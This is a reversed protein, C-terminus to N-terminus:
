PAPLRFRFLSGRGEESEVEIDGGHLQLLRRTIWLGLGAGPAERKDLRSFRQFLRPREKAPIGKGTDAVEVLIRDGECRAAVRITGGQPSYKVANDLLNGLIQELRGPDARLYVGEPVQNLFRFLPLRDEPQRARLLELERQVLPRVEIVAPELPVERGEELQAADLYTQVLRSARNASAEMTELMERAPDPLELGRLLHVGGKIVTLPGKLDHAAIQVFAAMADRRAKEELERRTAEQVQRFLRANEICISAQAALSRLLEQHRPTFLSCITSSDLYLVGTLRERLILPECLISRLGGLEISHSRDPLALADRHLVGRGTCVVEDIVTRSPDFAPSDFETPELHYFARERAEGGAELILLCGREAGTVEVASDLIQQLLEDLDLVETIARTVELLRQVGPDVTPPGTM